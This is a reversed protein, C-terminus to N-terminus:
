AALVADLGFNALMAQVAAPERGIRAALGEADLEGALLAGIPGAQLAAPIRPLRGQAAALGDDLARLGLDEGLRLHDDEAIERDLRAIRREGDLVGATALRYRVMQASAGCVAAIRVIEELTIPGPSREADWGELARKPLLFEAAFANAEVERPDHLDTLASPRDVVTAHGLRHHGFEHALTFRQRALPQRGNVFLLPCGPRAVHAGAVGEGLDLVVVHVGGREELSRLLDPLPGLQGLGLADRAERGRKAGRYTHVTPVNQTDARGSRRDVPEKVALMGAVVVVSPM